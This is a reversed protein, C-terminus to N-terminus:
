ELTTQPSLIVKEDILQKLEQLYFVRYELLLLPRLKFFNLLLM